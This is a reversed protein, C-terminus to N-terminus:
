LLSEAKEQVQNIAKELVFAREELSKDEPLFVKKGFVMVAKTGPLPFILRDWSAFTKKFKIAVGIPIIVGDTKEQLYVIGPKAKYIPGTPGDPTIFASNGEKIKRILKLLARGGGRSSSGRVIQYGYRKLVRTMYEGDRSLSSLVQYNLGKFYYAPLWLKGHWFAYLIPIQKDISDVNEKGYIDLRTWKNSIINLLYVLGPYLFLKIKSTFKKIM